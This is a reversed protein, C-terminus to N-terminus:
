EKDNYWKNIYGLDALVMATLGLDTHDGDTGNRGIEIAENIRKRIVEAIADLNGSAHLNPKITGFGDDFSM